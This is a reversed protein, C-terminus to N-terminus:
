ILEHEHDARIEVRRVEFGKRHSATADLFARAIDVTGVHGDIDRSATCRYVVLHECM